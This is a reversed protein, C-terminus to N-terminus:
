IFVKTSIFLHFFVRSNFSTRDCAKSWTMAPSPAARRVSHVLVSSSVRASAARSVRTEQISSLLVCPLSVVCSAKAVCTRRNGRSRCDM